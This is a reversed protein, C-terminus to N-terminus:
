NCNSKKDYYKYDALCPDYNEKAWEKGKYIDKIFYRKAPFRFALHRYWVTLQKLAKKKSLKMFDLKWIASAEGTRDAGGRCHILIPKPANEYLDILKLLDDKHPLRKASMGINYYLAGSERVAQDEEVWWDANANAGRLNIVTKIKWKKIVKKMQKASMQASRYLKGKEVVRKNPFLTASASLQVFLLVLVLRM